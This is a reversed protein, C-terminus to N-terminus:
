YPRPGGPWPTPVTAPATEKDWKLAKEPKGMEPVTAKALKAKTPANGKPAVVVHLLQGKEILTGVQFFSGLMKRWWSKDRQLIHANRGDALAKKSPGTHIVFYGVRRTVRRLDDLVFLIKEPEVHELVDFCCVVDAPRPSVDKGPIAPDYEWIPFSIAKALYGKGCGYDLVSRTGNDALKLVTPAHKGGGVGYALNDHHLRRNL